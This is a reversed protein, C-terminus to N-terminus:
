LDGVRHISIYALGTTGSYTATNGSNQFNAAQINQGKTVSIIGSAQVVTLGSIAAWAPARGIFRTTGAIQIRIEHYISGTGTWTYPQFGHSATIAYKGDIPATFAWSAGTTVANHTDTVKDEYDRIAQTATALTTTNDDSEYHAVIPIHKKGLFIDDDGTQVAWLDSADTFNAKFYGVMLAQADATLASNVLVHYPLTVSTATTSDDSNSVLSVESLTGVGWALSGDNNLAYVVLIQDTLDGKGGAGWHAGTLDIPVDATVTFVEKLGPTTSPVVVYGPNVASLSSGNAGTIKISDDAVSTEEAALGINWSGFPLNAATPLLGAFSPKFIQM